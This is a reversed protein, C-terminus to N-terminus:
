AAAISAGWYMHARMAHSFILAMSINVVDDESPREIHAASIAEQVVQQLCECISTCKFFYEVVDDHQNIPLLQKLDTKLTTLKTHRAQKEIRVFDMIEAQEEKLSDTAEIAARMLTKM